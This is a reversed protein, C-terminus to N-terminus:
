VTAPTDSGLLLLLTTKALLQAVAEPDREKHRPLQLGMQVTLAITSEAILQLHTKPISGLIPVELLDDTLDQTLEQMLRLACRGMTSAPRFQETMFLRLLNNNRQIADLSLRFTEVIMEEAVPEGKRLPARTHRLAKRVKNVSDEALEELLENMNSFHAYFSPQAIGARAAVASTTLGEHGKELLQDFGAQLLRHRTLLKSEERSLPRNAKPMTALDSLIFSSMM